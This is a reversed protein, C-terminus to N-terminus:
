FLLGESYFIRLDPRDFRQSFSFCGFVDKLVDNSHCFHAVLFCHQHCQMSEDVCFLRKSTKFVFEFLVKASCKCLSRFVLFHETRRNFILGHFEIIWAYYVMVKNWLASSRSYTVSLRIKDYNKTKRQWLKQITHSKNWVLYWYNIVVVIGFLSAFSSRLWRVKIMDLM